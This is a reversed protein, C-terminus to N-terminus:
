PARQPAKPAVSQRPPQKDTAQEPIKAQMSDNRGPAADSSVLGSMSRVYAVLQWVQFEPIRDGFPPMGNPRGDVITAFINAPEAGYIWVDDMLAPGKDGGGQAHCGSCNYANFLMKGQAMAYANNEDSSSGTRPLGARAQATFSNSAGVPAADFSPEQLRREERQCSALAVVLVATIATVTTRAAGIPCM